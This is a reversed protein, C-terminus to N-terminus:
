SHCDTLMSLFAPAKSSLGQSYYSLGRPPSPRGPSPTAPLLPRSIPREPLSQAPEPGRLLPPTALGPAPAWGSAPVSSAKLTQLLPQSEPSGPRLGTEVHTKPDRNGRECQSPKSDPPSCNEPGRVGEPAAADGLRARDPTHSFLAAPPRM